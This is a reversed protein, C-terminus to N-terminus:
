PIDGQQKLKVVEALARTFDRLCARRHKNAAAYDGDCHADAAKAFGNVARKFDKHLGEAGPPPTLGAFLKAHLRSLERAYRALPQEYPHKGLMGNVQLGVRAIAGTVVVYSTIRQARKKADEGEGARAQACVLVLTACLVGVHASRSTM